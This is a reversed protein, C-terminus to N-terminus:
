AWPRLEANRAEFSAIAPAKELTLGIDDLIPPGPPTRRFISPRAYHFSLGTAELLTQGPAAPRARSAASSSELGVGSASSASAASAARAESLSVGM